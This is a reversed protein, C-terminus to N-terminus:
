KLKLTFEDIGPKTVLIDLGNLEEFLLQFIGLESMQLEFKNECNSSDSHLDWSDM